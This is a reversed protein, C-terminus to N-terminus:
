LKRILNIKSNILHKKFEFCILAIKHLKGTKDCSINETYTKKCNKELGM